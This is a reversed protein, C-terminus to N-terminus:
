SKRTQFIGKIMNQQEHLIKDQSKLRNDYNNVAFPTKVWPYVMDRAKKEINVHTSKQVKSEAILDNSACNDRHSNAESHNASTSNKRVFM